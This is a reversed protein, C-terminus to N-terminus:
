KRRQAKQLTNLWDHTAPPVEPSWRLATHHHVVRRTTPAIIGLWLLGSLAVGACPLPASASDPFTTLTALKAAKIPTSVAGVSVLLSEVVAASSTSM